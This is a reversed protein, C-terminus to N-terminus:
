SARGYLLLNDLVELIAMAEKTEGRLIRMRTDFLIRSLTIPQLIVEPMKINTNELGLTKLVYDEEPTM